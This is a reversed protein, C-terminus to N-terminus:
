ACCALKRTICHTSITVYYFPRLTALELRSFTLNDVPSLLLVSRKGKGFDEKTKAVKQKLNSKQSGSNQARVTDYKERGIKGAM